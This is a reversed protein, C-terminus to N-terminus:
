RTRDNVSSECRWFMWLPFLLQQKMLSGVVSIWEQELLVSFWSSGPIGRIAWTCCSFYWTCLLCASYLAQLLPCDFCGMARGSELSFDVERTPKRSTNLETRWEGPKTHSTIYTRTYLSPSCPAALMNGKNRRSWPKGLSTTPNTVPTHPWTNEMLPEVKPPHSM